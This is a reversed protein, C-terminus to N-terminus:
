RTTDWPIRMDSFALNRYAHPVFRERPVKRMVELVHEDFVEWHRIQQEAMNFRAKEIDTMIM